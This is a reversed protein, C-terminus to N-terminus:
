MPSLRRGSRYTSARALAFDLVCHGGGHLSHLSHLSHLRHLRHLSDLRHLHHPLLLHGNDGLARSRLCRDERTVLDLSLTSKRLRSQRLVAPALDDALFCLSSALLRVLVDRAPGLRDSLRPLGEREGPEHRHVPLRRLPLGQVGLRLRDVVLSTRVSAVHAGVIPPDDLRAASKKNTPIRATFPRASASCHCQIYGAM